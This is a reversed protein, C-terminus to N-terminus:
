MLSMLLDSYYAETQFHYDCNITGFMYVNANQRFGIFDVSFM